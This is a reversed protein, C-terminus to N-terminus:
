FRIRGSRVAEVWSMRWNPTHVFTERGQRVIKVEEPWGATLEKFLVPDDPLAHLRRTARGGLDKLKADNGKFVAVRADRLESENLMVNLTEVNAGTDRLVVNAQRTYGAFAANVMDPTIGQPLETPLVGDAVVAQQMAEVAFAGIADSAQSLVNAALDIEAKDEATAGPLAVVEQQVDPRTDPRIDPAAAAQGGKAAFQERDAHNSEVVTDLLGAAEAAAISTVMGNSLRVQGKAPGDRYASASGSHNEQFSWSGDRFVAKSTSYSHAPSPARYAAREAREAEQVAKTFNMLDQASEFAGVQYRDAM